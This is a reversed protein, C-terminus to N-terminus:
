CLLWVSMTVLTSLIRGCSRMKNLPFYWAEHHSCTRPGNPRMKEQQREVEMEGCQGGQGKCIPMQRQATSNSNGKGPIGAFGAHSAKEREAPKEEM